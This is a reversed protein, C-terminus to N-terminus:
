EGAPAFDKVIEHFDADSAGVPSATNEALVRERVRVITTNISKSEVNLALAIHSSRADPFQRLVAEVRSAKSSMPDAGQIIAKYADVTGPEDSSGKVSRSTPESAKIAGKKASTGRSAQESAKQQRKLEREIQRKAEAAAEHSVAIRNKIIRIAVEISLFLAVPAIGHVIRAQFGNGANGASAINGWVSLLVGFVVLLNGYVTKRSQLSAHLSEASGLLLMGDVCLPLLFALGQNIGSQVALFVLGSYSLCFASSAVLVILMVACRRIWQDGKFTLSDATLTSM